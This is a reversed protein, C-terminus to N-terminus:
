DYAGRSSIFEEKALFESPSITMELRIFSHIVPDIMAYLAVFYTGGEEKVCPPEIEKEKETLEKLRYQKLYEERSPILDYRRLRVYIAALDLAKTGNMEDRSINTKMFAQVDAGKEMFILDGSKDLAASYPKIERGALFSAPNFVNIKVLPFEKLYKILLIDKFEEVGRLYRGYREEIAKRNKKSLINRYNLIDPSGTKRDKTEGEMINGGIIFFCILIRVAWSRM